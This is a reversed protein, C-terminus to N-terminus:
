MAEGYAGASLIALLDGRNSKPLFVSKGFYDSTECIPAAIDYLESRENSTLYIIKHKADYLAPRLLETFGADVIITKRNENEKVYLIRTILTGSQGVIPRGPELHITQGPFIELNENFIKM